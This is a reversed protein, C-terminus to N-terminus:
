YLFYGFLPTHWDPIPANYYPLQHDKEGVSQFDPSSPLKLKDSKNELASLASPLTEAV